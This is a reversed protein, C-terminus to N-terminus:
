ADAQHHLHRQCGARQHGACRSGQQPHMGCARGARAPVAGRALTHPQRWVGRVSGKRDLNTGSPYKGNLIDQQLSQFVRNRLNFSRIEPNRDQKANRYVHRREKRVQWPWACPMHRCITYTATPYVHSVITYMYGVTENYGMGDRKVRAFQFSFVCLKENQLRPHGLSFPHRLPPGSPPLSAPFPLGPFSAPSLSAPSPLCPFSARSLSAPFPPPPPSASFPPWLLPAPSLSPPSPLRPLSAPFPCSFSLPFPPLSPLGPLSAPSPSPFPLRPLSAPFPPLSPPLLLLPSLSAPSPLGPLSAPYSLPSPSPSSSAPFSLPLSAPPLLRPLLPSFPPPSPPRPPPCPFPLCPFPLGPFPRGPFPPLPLLRPFPCPFPLRPLSLPFPLRLLSAPPLLCPPLLGPLLSPFPSAPALAGWTPLWFFGRCFAKAALHSAKQRPTHHPAARRRGSAASTRFFRSREDAVARGGGYHRCAAHRRSVPYPLYEMDSSSLAKEIVSLSCPTTMPCASAEALTVPTGMGKLFDRLVSAQERDKDLMLQVLIGYAVIDGHLFNKEVEPIVSLGYCVSHAVAGNYREEVLLSVLGTTVVNALVAERLAPTDSDKKCDDLAQQGCDLLPGYCLNSIERGLASSHDLQDGRSSFCCEFHKAVTDGMGARLYRDPAQALIGTHIFCHTPPADFHVTRDHTHDAHYVVSLATTGACTSATTPLAIVPLLGAKNAM